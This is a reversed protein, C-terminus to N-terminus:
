ARAMRRLALHAAMGAATGLAIGILDALWDAMEQARGVFPQIVEIMGGFGAFLPVALWIWRPRLAAIPFALAAFAAVHHLKDSGAPMSPMDIRTLTLAAITVAIAATLFLTLIDRREM